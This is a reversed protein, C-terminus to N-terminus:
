GVGGKVVGVSRALEYLNWYNRLLAWPTGHQLTVVRFQRWHAAVLLATCMVLAAEFGVIKPDNPTSFAALTSTSQSVLRRPQGAAKM